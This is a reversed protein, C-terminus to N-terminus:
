KALAESAQVAEPIRLEGSILKPLLTDRLSELEKLQRSNSVSKDALGEFINDVANLLKVNPCLVTQESLIKRSLETQGTSGEGLAEIEWEKAIMLQAFVFTPYIEPNSRVVTVHSDVVTAEDLFKVPAVRGLTGVGTSNVLVDGIELERGEIKRLAPDNLRCLSYNVEHHRICKQNIVRIGTKEAYKPSIGRRLETTIDALTKVRWGKPVWGQIGVSPEDSQEFAQPFLHHFEQAASIQRASGREVNDANHQGENHANLRRQAHPLLPEPINHLPENNHALNHAIINDFVPDFDVFWSKFLAQAMAELTKNTERNLQIKNDLAELQDAIVRQINLPAKPIEFNEIMSKTLANRTAGSSALNLLLQQQYPSALFYRIFRADFEEPNPRIILVHQNVRAPLYQQPALCVRAVSDGTINLLIDNEEVIVNKLKLAADETIFVLGSANFTDNYINQSRILYIDGVELYVGSGGKPTAGSGIKLCYDSLKVLPWENGM